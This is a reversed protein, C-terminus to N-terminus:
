SAAVLDLVKVVASEFVEPRPLLSIVIHAGSRLGFFYGPHVVVQAEELLRRVLAEEGATEPVQIVVSWGGEPEIVRVAPHVGATRVLARYNEQVRQRIADRIGAGTALLKAAALQVPTSVSLYTDCMLELRGMADAVDADPGSVIMWGLKVQPLGASKSLGGLTFTLVRSEGLMSAADQRPIIPFDAFVEDSIIAFRGVQAFEVLWERDDRRLMSGTPNNPTVVLVAGTRASCSARVSERDISWVGHNELQYDMPQVSELQTLLEFLPYSPQPVLVCDGPDCLLKFLLSYSESTSATLVVRSADIRAGGKSMEAAVAERAATLGFPAPEYSLGAPDALSALLDPPYVLGVKTPNTVTLDLLPV